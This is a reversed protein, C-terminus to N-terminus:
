PIQEWVGNLAGQLRPLDVIFPVSEPVGAKAQVERIINKGDVFMFYFGYLGCTCATFLWVKLVSVRSYGLYANIESAM